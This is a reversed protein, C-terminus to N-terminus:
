LDVRTSGILDGLTERQRADLQEHLDVLASKAADRIAHMAEDIRRTADDFASEDFADSRVARAIDDRGEKIRAEVDDMAGRLRSVVADFARGQRPTARLRERLARVFSGVAADLDPKGVSAPSSTETHRPRAPRDFDGFDGWLSEGYPGGWPRHRYGYGHYRFRPGWMLTRVLWFLFITGVFFGPFM